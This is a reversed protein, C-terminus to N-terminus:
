YQFDTDHDKIEKCVYIEGGSVRLIADIIESSPSSKTLYGKAGLSIMNRAYSPERNVSLGIIKLSPFLRALKRTAEFGNVPAMNIDMLIVDPQQKHIYDMAQQGSAAEGIVKLGPQRSILYKLTERMHANDDVILITTLNSM